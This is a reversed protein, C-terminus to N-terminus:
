PFLEMYSTWWNEEKTILEDGSISYLDSFDIKATLSYLYKWHFCKSNKLGTEYPKHVPHWTFKTYPVRGWPVINLLKMANEYVQTDKKIFFFLLFLETYSTWWNEGVSTLEDGSISYLDSFDIKATLSYLYKWHFCKLNKLGTEYPKHM